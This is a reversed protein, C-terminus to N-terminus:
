KNLYKNKNTKTRAQHSKKQRPKNKKNPDRRPPFSVASVNGTEDLAIKSLVQGRFYYIESEKRGNKGWCTEMGHMKGERWTRGLRKQANEHWRIEVGHKKGNRWMEESWKKGRGWWWKDLGHKKGNVYTTKYEIDGNDYHTTKIETATNIMTSEPTM